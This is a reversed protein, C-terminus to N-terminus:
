TFVNPCFARYTLIVMTIEMSQGMLKDNDFIVQTLFYAM